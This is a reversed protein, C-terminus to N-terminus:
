ECTLWGEEFAAFVGQANEPTLQGEQVLQNIQDGENGLLGHVRSNELAMRGLNLKEVSGPIETLFAEIETWKGPHNLDFYEGEDVM